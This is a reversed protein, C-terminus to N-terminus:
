QVAIAVSNSVAAGITLFVPVANGSPTGAPVTVNVQYLGVSGPTLGCYGPTATTNGVGFFSGGGFTMSCPGVTAQGPVAIGEIAAPVTQGFGLGYFVLTDGAKAPRSAVGATTPIPFTVFDTFTAIAYDTELFPFQLLKPEVNAVQVSITNGTQVTGNDNRDVRVTAQGAPVNYPMQFTIQGGPNVVSSASVYDIPAAVGNVYVTAGGLATGLPLSPASVAAGTTFLEGKVIVLGGPAVAADTEFLANDVVGQFYSYPAGPAEVNMVVGVTLPGNKANSAITVGALYAGPSLGSPNASLYVCAAFGANNNVGSEAAACQGDAATIPVTSATLWTGTSTVTAGTVTLTGLGANTLQIWKDVTAAGQGVNFQVSTQQLVAIPMATVNLTVPVSKVDPAFSSGTVNIDGTYSTEPTVSAPATATVQYSGSGAFSGAFTAAVSLKLGGTPQVVSDTLTPSANFTTSASGGPPLYLTIAAPVGGGMQVTVSITQPADIAGTASVTVMGTYVGATLSQTNLAILVNSSQMSANIWPVNASANLALTGTGINSTQVTQIPGSQGVAINVPGVASTSLRLQPTAYLVAASVLVYIFHRMSKLLHRLISVPM